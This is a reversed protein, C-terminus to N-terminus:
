SGPPVWTVDYVLLAKALAEQTEIYFEFAADETYLVAQQWSPVGKEPPHDMLLLYSQLPELGSEDGIKGLTEIAALHTEWGFQRHRMALIRGMAESVPGPHNLGISFLGRSAAENAGTAGYELAGVLPMIGVEGFAAMTLAAASKTESSGKPDHMVGLLREIASASNVELRRWQLAEEVSDKAVFFLLLPLVLKVAVDFPDPWSFRPKKTTVPASADPKPELAEPM